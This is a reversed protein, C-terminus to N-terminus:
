GRGLLDDLKNRETQLERALKKEKDNAKTKFTKFEEELEAYLQTRYRAERRHGASRAIVAIAVIALLAVLGWVILNYTTKPLVLGFIAIGDKRALEDGQNSVQTKLSDVLKNQAAIKGLAANLKGRNVNLTDSANKWLASILPQQYHYVKSLLYQYQTNLNQNTLVPVASDTPMSAPQNPQPAQVPAHATSDAKRKYYGYSHHRYAYKPATKVAPKRGATDQAFVTISGFCFLLAFVLIRLM